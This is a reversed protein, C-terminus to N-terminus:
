YRLINMKQLLNISWRMTLLTLQFIRYLKRKWHILGNRYLLFFLSLSLLLLLLSMTYIEFV